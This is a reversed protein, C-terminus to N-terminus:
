GEGASHLFLGDLRRCTRRHKDTLVATLVVQLAVVAIERQCIALEISTIKFSIVGNPLYSVLRTSTTDQEGIAEGGLDISIVFQSCLAQVLFSALEVEAVGTPCKMGM